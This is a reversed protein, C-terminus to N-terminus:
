TFDFWVGDMAEYTVETIPCYQQRNWLGVSKRRRRFLNLVEAFMFQYIM